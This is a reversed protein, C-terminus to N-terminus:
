EYVPLDTNSFCDVLTSKTLPDKLVEGEIPIKTYGRFGYREVLPANKGANRSRGNRLTQKIDPKNGWTVKQPLSKDWEWGEPEEPGCNKDVRWEWEGRKSDPGTRRILGIIDFLSAVQPTPDAGMRLWYVCRDAKFSFADKDYMNKMPDWWGVEEIWRGSRQTHRHPNQVLIRYFPAAPEGFRAMRIRPRKQPRRHFVFGQYRPFKARGKWRRGRHEDFRTILSQLEADGHAASLGLGRAGDFAVFAQSPALWLAMSGAAALAALLM